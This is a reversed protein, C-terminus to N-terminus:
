KRAPTELASSLPPLLHTSLTLAVLVLVLLGALGLAPVLLGAFGASICGLTALTNRSSLSGTLRYSFLTQALLYLAPGAAVTAVQATPLVDTPHAIVLESGVASLIIGAVFLVHLYTYVQVALGLSDRSIELHHEGITAVGTFYLWWIAATTLFALIFGLIRASTLETDSTTAGILVLSEGLALMIFLGFREAFHGAGVRWDQPVTRRMGPVWLMVLWAAYDIALAVLWLVIMTRGGALAGLIWLAQAPLFYLVVLRIRELNGLRVAAFVVFAHSSLQVAVYSGAFLLRHAEFAQPIAVTMLLSMLMMLLLLLRVPDTDTDLEDTMWTTFTWSWYIALLVISSHLVGTWDLHQLFLHSVQTIAFVFVLDYFLELTSAREGTGAPRLYQTPSM